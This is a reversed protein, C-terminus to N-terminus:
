GRMRARSRAHPSRVSFAASTIASLAARRRSRRRTGAPRATPTPRARARAPRERRACSAGGRARRRGARGDQDADLGVAADHDARAAGLDPLAHLGRQRHNSASSSSASQDCRSADLLHRQRDVEAPASGRQCIRAAPRPRCCWCERRSPPGAGTDARLARQSMRAAAAACQPTSAASASSARRGRRQVRVAARQRVAREDRLGRRDRQRGLRRRELIGLSYRM